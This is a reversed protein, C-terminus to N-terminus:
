AMKPIFFGALYRCRENGLFDLHFHKIEGEPRYAKNKHMFRVGLKYGRNKTLSQLIQHATELSLYSEIMMGERCVNIARGLFNRTKIRYVVPFDVSVRTYRRRDEKLIRGV